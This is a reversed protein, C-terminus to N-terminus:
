PRPQRRSASLAVSRPSAIRREGSGEVGRWKPASLPRGNMSRARAQRPHASPPRACQSLSATPASPEEEGEFIVGPEALKRGEVIVYQENASPRSSVNLRHAERGRHDNGITASRQTLPLLLLLQVRGHSGARACTLARLYATLMEPFPAL